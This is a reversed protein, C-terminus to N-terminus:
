QRVATKPASKSKALRWDSAATVANKEDPDFQEPLLEAVKTGPPEGTVTESQALVAVSLM